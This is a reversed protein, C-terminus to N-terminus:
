IEEIKIVDEDLGAAMAAASCDMGVVSAGELVRQEEPTLREVHKEIMYRMNEPVGLEVENLEAQLCWQGDRNVIVEEDILYEILNVMFLPNGETRHHIMPPLGAPFQHAPFKLNLFEAVVESTLYELPLEHCLKHMQLELKVDKLPHDNLIVEVPRYTSILMLRTPHRGRALYSILDLTSLDSWHLDELVLILPSELTLAEIAESMERLMRERTAGVVEEQLAEREVPTTLSPMQALWTPANARLLEIIRGRAPGRALRSLCELVPLYAEGAGYQELCQGRAIWIDQLQRAQLLFAEVLSTKGIGAEGTVFVVQTQAAISKDLWAMMQALAEERGLISLDTPPPSPASFREPKAAEAPSVKDNGSVPGIFRYGRRHATEIYRPARAEDGFAERLQRICDKLVADSVFTNPWVDDLLQQKTVLIGPHQVLYRLVAYAKPRLSIARKEHWLCENAEDLRFPGLAIQQDKM